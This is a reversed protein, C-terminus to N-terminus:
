TWYDYSSEVFSDLQEALDEIEDVTLDEIEIDATDGYETITCKANSANKAFEEVLDTCYGMLFVPDDENDEERVNDNIYNILEDLFVEIHAFSKEFLWYTGYHIEFIDEGSEDDRIRIVYEQADDTDEVCLTEVSNNVAVSHTTNNTFMDNFNNYFNM